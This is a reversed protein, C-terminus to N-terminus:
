EAGCEARVERILQALQGIYSLKSYRENHAELVGIDTCLPPQLESLLASASFPVRLANFGMDDHLLKLYDRVDHQALGGPLCPRSEFGSWSVGNLRVEVGAPDSQGLVGHADWANTLVAALAANCCHHPM